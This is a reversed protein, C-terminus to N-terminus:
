APTPLALCYFRVQAEPSLEWTYKNHRLAPVEAALLDTATIAVDVTAATACDTILLTAEQAAGSLNLAEQMVCLLTSDSMLTRARTHECYQSKCGRFFAYAVSICPTRPRRCSSFLRSSEASYSPLPKLCEVQAPQAHIKGDLDGVTEQQSCTAELSIPVKDDTEFAGTSLGSPSAPVLEPTPPNLDSSYSDSLSDTMSSADNDGAPQPECVVEQRKATNQAKLAAAAEQLENATKNGIGRQMPCCMPTLVYSELLSRVTTIFRVAAM